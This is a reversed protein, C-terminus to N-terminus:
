SLLLAMAKELAQKRRSEPIECLAEVQKRTESAIRQAEEEGAGEAEKITRDRQEAAERLIQQRISAIKNPIDKKMRAIELEAERLIKLSEKEAEVIRKM